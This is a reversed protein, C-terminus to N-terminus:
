QQGKTLELRRRIEALNVTSFGLLPVVRAGALQEAIVHAPEGETTMWHSCWPTEFAASLAGKNLAALMEHATRKAADASAGARLLTAFIAILAVEDDSFSRAKGRTGGLDLYGRHVWTKLESASVGFGLLDTTSHM